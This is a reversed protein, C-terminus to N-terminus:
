KAGDAYETLVAAWQAAESPSLFVTLPEFSSGSSRVTFQAAESPSRTMLRRELVGGSLSAFFVTQSSM